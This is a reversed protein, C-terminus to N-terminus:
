DNHSFMFIAILIIIIIIMVVIVFNFGNTTADNVVANFNIFNSINM